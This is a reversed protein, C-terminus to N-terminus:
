KGKRKQETKFKIYDKVDQWLEEVEEPALDKEGGWFAAKIDADSIQHTEKEPTMDDTKGCLWSPNVSMFNAIAEIVPLKINEINGSEYRQITSKAVGIERAIDDLTLGLQKRRLEIREGVVKNGM